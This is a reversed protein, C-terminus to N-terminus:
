HITHINQQCMKFKYIKDVDILKINILSVDSNKYSYVSKRYPFHHEYMTNMIVLYIIILLLVVMMVRIHNNFM